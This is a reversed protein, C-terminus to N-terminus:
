LNMYIFIYKEIAGTAGSHTRLASEPLGDPGYTYNCTTLENTFLNNKRTVTNNASSTAFSKLYLPGFIFPDGSPNYRITPTPIRPFAARFPNHHNDFSFEFDNIAFGGLTDVERLLNGNVWNAYVSFSDQSIGFVSHYTKYKVKYHNVTIKTFNYVDYILGYFDSSSSSDKAIVGDQYTLFLTDYVTRAPMSPSFQTYTIFITSPLTDAGLYSHSFITKSFLVNNPVYSYEEFVSLRKSADYSFNCLLFTDKSFPTSTDKVIIQKIVKFSNPSQLKIEKQCSSDGILLSILILFVGVFRM